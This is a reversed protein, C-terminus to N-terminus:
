TRGRGERMALALSSLAAALRYPPRLCSADDLPTRNPGDRDKDAGFVCVVREGRHEAVGEGGPSLTEEM